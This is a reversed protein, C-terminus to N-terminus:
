KLGEGPRIAQFSHKRHLPDSEACTAMGTLVTSPCLSFGYVNQITYTAEPAADGTTGAAFKLIKGAGADAVYIARNDSSDSVAVGVPNVIKSTPGSIYAEPATNGTDTKNWISIWGNGVCYGYLNTACYSAAYIKGNNSVAIGSSPYEANPAVNSGKLCIIPTVNNGNDSENFEQITAPEGYVDTLGIAYIHGNGDGTIAVWAGVNGCTSDITHEPSVNSGQDGANFRLLKKGFCGDGCTEVGVWIHSNEDLYPVVRNCGDYCYM